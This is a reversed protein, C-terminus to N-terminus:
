LEKRQKWDIDGTEKNGEQGCHLVKMRENKQKQDRKKGGKETLKVTLPKSTLESLTVSQPSFWDNEVLPRRGM